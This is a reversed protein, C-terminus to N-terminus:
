VVQVDANHGTSGTFKADATYLPCELAEALVVYMADYATLNNRLELVRPIMVTMPHRVIRLDRLDVCMEEGRHGSIRSGLTLGRIASAVEVDILHPANIVRPPMLRRRVVDNISVNLLLRVMLSADVVLNM